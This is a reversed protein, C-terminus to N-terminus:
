FGGIRQSVIARNEGDNSESRSRPTESDSDIRADGWL